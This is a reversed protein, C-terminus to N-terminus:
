KALCLFHLCAVDYSKMISSRYEQLTNYAPLSIGYLDIRFSLYKDIEIRKWPWIRCVVKGMIQAEEVCGIARLRSDMSIARDTFVAIFLNKDAAPLLSIGVGM